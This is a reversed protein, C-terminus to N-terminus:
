GLSLTQNLQIREDYRLAFSHELRKTESNLLMVSFVDYDVLSKVRMGITRMLTELDLISTLETGIDYLLSLIRAQQILEASTRGEQSRDAVLALNESESVQRSANYRHISM